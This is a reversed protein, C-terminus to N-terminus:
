LTVELSLRLDNMALVFCDDCDSDEGYIGIAHNACFDKDCSACHIRCESCVEEICGLAACRYPVADYTRGCDCMM